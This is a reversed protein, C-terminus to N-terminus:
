PLPEEPPYFHYIRFTLESDINHINKIPKVGGQKLINLVDIWQNDSKIQSRTIAPGVAEIVWFGTTGTKLLYDFIKEDSSNSLADTFSVIPVNYYTQYRHYYWMDSNWHTRDDKIIIERGVTDFFLLKNDLKTIFRRKPLEGYINERLYQDLKSFGYDPFRYESYAFGQSGYARPLINTNINYSLEFAMLALVLGILMKKLNSRDRMSTWLKKLSLALAISTLPIIIAIFHPAVGSFSFMLLVFLINLLLFITFKDSQKRIWQIILHIISAMTALLFPMTMTDRLSDFITKINDLINSNVNRTLIYYDEPNMGLMSSLAADFHGRTKFVMINYIIIPTLTLLFILASKWFVKNKFIKRNKILLFVFIAPLLYLATYKTLVSLGVLLATLYLFKSKEKYIFLVFFVFAGTLPLIEIGELYGTRTVWISLTTITFLASALLAEFNGRVKNIIYFILYTTAIGALAFSLLVSFSSQGFLLLFIFQIGFALPPHDHFSLWGWWPIEKFWIIPSTQGEGALYDFWGMARVSYIASDHQIDMNWLGWLRLIAAVFMIVMLISVPNKFVKSM